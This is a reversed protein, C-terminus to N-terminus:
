NVKLDDPHIELLEALPDRMANVASRMANLKKELAAIRADREDLGGAMHAATAYAEDDVYSQLSGYGSLSYGILQAFQQRDDDSFNMRALENLGCTPHSDLLHQVIKNAKFRLVGDADNALPQIPNKM